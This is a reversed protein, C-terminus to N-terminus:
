RSLWTTRPTNNMVNDNNETNIEYRFRRPVKPSIGEIILMIEDWRITRFGEKEKQFIRNYFREQELRKYYLAYGGREYHLLKMTNRRRGVFIYVDGNTPEMGSQRIRGCMGNIGIRMDCPFQLIFYKNNENLNFMDRKQSCLQCLFLSM